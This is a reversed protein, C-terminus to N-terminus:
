TKEEEILYAIASEIDPCEVSHGRLVSLRISAVQRTLATELRQKFDVIERQHLAHLKALVRDDKQLPQPVHHLRLTAHTAGGAESAQVAFAEIALKRATALGAQGTQVGDQAGQVEFHAEGSTSAILEEATSAKGRTTYPATIFGLV